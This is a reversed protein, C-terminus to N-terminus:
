ALGRWRRSVIEGVLSALFVGFVLWVPPRRPASDRRQASPKSSPGLTSALAAVPAPDANVESERAHPAAAAAVAAVVAAWWERHRVAADAAPSMRWRWTEDYGSAMVRGLQARRVAILPRGASDRELVVADRRVDALVTAPSGGTRRSAAGAPTIASFAASGAAGGLLVAGGGAAVYRSIAPADSAASGDLAIVASHLATDPFRARGQRVEVGPAVRLRADVGWGAEELAAIAFKSEWGASGLVLLRRVAVPQPLETLARTGAVSASVAGSATRLVVSAARERMRLTDIPGIADALVVDSGAPASISVRIRNEPEAVRMAAVSIPTLRTGTWTM